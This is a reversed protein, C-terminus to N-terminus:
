IMLGHEMHHKQLVSRFIKDKKVITLFTKSKWGANMVPSGYHAAMNSPMSKQLDGQMFIESSLNSKKQSCHAPM